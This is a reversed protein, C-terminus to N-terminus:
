KEFHRKFPLARKKGELFDRFANIRETKNKIESKPHLESFEKQYIKLMKKEARYPAKSIRKHILHLIGLYIVGMMLLTFVVLMIYAFINYPTYRLIDKPNFIDKIFWFILFTSILSFLLLPVRKKPLIKIPFTISPKTKREKKKIKPIKQKEKTTTPEGKVEKKEHEKITKLDKYANIFDLFTTYRDYNTNFHGYPYKDEFENEINEIEQLLEYREHFQDVFEPEPIDTIDLLRKKYLFWYLAYGDILWLNILDDQDIQLIDCMERLKNLIPKQIKVLIEEM